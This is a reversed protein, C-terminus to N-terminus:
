PLTLRPVRRPLRNHRGGARTPGRQGGRRRPASSTGAAEGRAKPPRRPKRAIPSYAENADADELDLDERAQRVANFAKAVRSQLLELEPRAALLASAARLHELAQALALDAARRTGMM